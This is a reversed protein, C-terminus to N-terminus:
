PVVGIQRLLWDGGYYYMFTTLGCCCCLLVLLVGLVISLIRRGPDEEDAVDTGELYEEQEGKDRSVEESQTARVPERERWLNSGGEAITAAFVEGGIAEEPAAAEEGTESQVPSFSMESQSDAVGDVAAPGGGDIAERHILQYRLAVSGGLTILQGNQLGYADGSLRAGNVLTGNTSGLDQIKYGGNPMLILLAHQRSVEPDAICLDSIPDRGITHSPLTLQFVEGPEPGREM